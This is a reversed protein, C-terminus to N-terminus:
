DSCGVADADRQLGCPQRRTIGDRDPSEYEVIRARTAGAAAPLHVAVQANGRHVSGDEMHGPMDHAVVAGKRAAHRDAVRCTREESGPEEIRVARLNVEDHTIM